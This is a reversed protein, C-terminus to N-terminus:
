FPVTEDTKKFTVSRNKIEIKTPKEVRWMRSKNKIVNKAGGNRLYHILENRKKNQRNKVMFEMFTELKFYVDNDEIFIYGAEIQSIDDGPEEDQIFKRIYYEYEAVKSDKADEIVIQMDKLKRLFLKFDKPKLTDWVTDAQDFLSRAFLQQQTIDVGTLTIQQGEM